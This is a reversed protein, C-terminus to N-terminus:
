DNFGDDFITPELEERQWRTRRSEQKHDLWMVFDSYGKRVMEVSLDVGAARSIEEIVSGIIDSISDEASFIREAPSPFDALEEAIRNEPLECAPGHFNLEGYFPYIEGRISHYGTLKEGALLENKKSAEATKMAAAAARVAKAQEEKLSEIAREGESSDLYAQRCEDFYKEFQGQGAREIEIEISRADLERRLSDLHAETLDFDGFQVMSELFEIGREPHGDMFDEVETDFFGPEPEPLYDKLHAVAIVGAAKSRISHEFLQDRKEIKTM